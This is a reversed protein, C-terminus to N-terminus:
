EKMLEDLNLKGDSKFPVSLNLVRADGELRYHLVRSTFLNTVSDWLSSFKVPLPIKVLSEANAQVKIAESTKATTLLKNDVFIKYAVEEVKIAFSNPNEVKLFFLLTAEQINLASVEVHDLSVKPEKVIEKLLSSCSATLLM